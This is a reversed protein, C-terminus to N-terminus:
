AGFKAKGFGTRPAATSQQHAPDKAAEQTEPFMPQSLNPNRMGHFPSNDGLIKKVSTFANEFSKMKGDLYEIVAKIQDVVDEFKQYDDDLSIIAERTADNNSLKKEKLVTPVTELILVSRRKNLNKKAVLLEYTLSALIESLQRWSRNYTALLEPGTVKNAREVEDQRVENKIIHALNIVM